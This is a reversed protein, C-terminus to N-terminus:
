EMYTRNEICVAVVVAVVVVNGYDFGVVVLRCRAVPSSIACVDILYWDDIMLKVGWLLIAISQIFVIEVKYVYM